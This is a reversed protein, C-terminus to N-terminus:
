DNIKYKLYEQKKKFHRSAEYSINNPIDGIIKSPDQVWQLKGQKRQDLLNSCGENYWKKEKLEYYGLCEKASIKINETISEWARKINVEADL